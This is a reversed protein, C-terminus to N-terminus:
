IYSCIHPFSLLSRFVSVKVPNESCNMEDLTRMFNKWIPEVYRVLGVRCFKLLEPGKVSLIEVLIKVFLIGGIRMKNGFFSQYTKTEVFHAFGYCRREM